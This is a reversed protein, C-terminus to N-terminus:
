RVDGLILKVHEARTSSFYGSAKEKQRNKQIEKLNWSSQLTVQPSIPYEEPSFRLKNSTQLQARHENCVRQDAHLHFIKSAKNEADSGKLLVFGPQCGHQTHPPKYDSQFM